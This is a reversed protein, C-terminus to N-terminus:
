CDNSDGRMLKEGKYMCAYKNFIKERLKKTIKM